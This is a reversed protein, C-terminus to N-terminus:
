PGAPAPTARPTGLIGRTITLTFLNDFAFIYVSVLASILLVIVTFKVVTERPPWTVKQLEQWCEQAFRVVGGETRTTAM